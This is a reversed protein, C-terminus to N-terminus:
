PKLGLQKIYRDAKDDLDKGATWEEKLRAKVFDPFSYFTTERDTEKHLASITFDTYFEPQCLVCPMVVTAGCTKCRAVNKPKGKGRLRKEERLEYATHTLQNIRKDVLLTDNATDFMMDRLQGM